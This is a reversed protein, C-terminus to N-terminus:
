ILNPSTIPEYPGVAAVVRRPTLDQTRPVSLRVSQCAPAFLKRNFKKPGFRRVTTAGLGDEGIFVKSPLFEKAVSNEAERM